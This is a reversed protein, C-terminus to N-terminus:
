NGLLRKDYLIKVKFEVREDLSYKKKSTIGTVCCDNHYFVGHFADMYFKIYNDLDPITAPKILGVEKLIANKISSSKQTKLYCIMDISVDIIAENKVADYLESYLESDLEKITQITQKKITNSIAGKRNYFRNGRSTHRERVYNEPKGLISFNFNLEKFFEENQTKYESIIGKVKDSDLDKLLMRIQEEKM